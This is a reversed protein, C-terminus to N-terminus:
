NKNLGFERTGLKLKLLSEKKIAEDQTITKPLLMLLTFVFHECHAANANVLEKLGINGGHGQSRIYTAWRGWLGEEGYSSGIYQHGTSTDRILYVANTVSLTKKWDPYQNNIIEKLENYTLIFDFYDKFHKYHLGPQIEIIAKQNHIGQVWARTGGGWDVIIRDTLEHYATDEELNYEV